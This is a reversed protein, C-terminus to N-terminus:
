TIELKKEYEILEQQKTEQIKKETCTSNRLGILQTYEQKSNNM